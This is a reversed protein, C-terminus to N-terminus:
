ENTRSNMCENRMEYECAMEALIRFYKSEVPSRRDDLLFLRDLIEVAARYSSEDEIPALSLKSCIESFETDHLDDLDM